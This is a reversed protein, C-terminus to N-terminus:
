SGRQSACLENQLDSPLKFIGCNVVDVIDNHRVELLNSAAKVQAVIMGGQCDIIAESSLNQTPILMVQPFVINMNNNNWCVERTMEM